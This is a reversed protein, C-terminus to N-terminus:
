SVHSNSFVIGWYLYHFCTISFAIWILFNWLCSGCRRSVIQLLKFFLLFVSQLMSNCILWCFVLFIEIFHRLMWSSIFIHWVCFYINRFTVVAFVIIILFISHVFIIQIPLYLNLSNLMELILILRWIFIIFIRLYKLIHIIIRVLLLILIPIFILKILMLNSFFIIFFKIDISLYGWVSIILVFIFIPCRLKNIEMWINCCQRQLIRNSLLFNVNWM